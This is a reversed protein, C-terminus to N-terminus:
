GTGCRRPASGAARRRVHVYALAGRPLARGTTPFSAGPGTRANSRPAAPSRGRTSAGRCRGGSFGTNSPTSVYYDTVWVGNPAPGVGRDYRGEPRPGPVVGGATGGAHAHPGGSLRHITRHPRQADDREDGPVNARRHRGPGPTTATSTSPSAAGRRTTTARTSSSESSTPGHSNPATPWGTLSPDGDWRAMWVADPRAYDDLTRPPCTVCGPTRTSTRCRRPVGRRAADQDLGLRVSAGGDPVGLGATTTSSTPTCPAARAAPGAGRGARRRGRRRREGRPPTAPPTATRSAASCASRSTASTPPCYGGVRGHAERVWATTLNPQGCGRNRGGFYINIVKYPSTGMWARLAGLSPATCTDFGLGSVRTASAGSPYSVPTDPEAHAVAEMAGSLLLLSCTVVLLRRILAPRAPM